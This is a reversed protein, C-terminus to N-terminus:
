VTNKEKRSKKKLSKKEKKEAKEEKKSKRKNKIEIVVEEKNITQVTEIHPEVVNEAAAEIAVETKPEEIKPEKEEPDKSKKRFISKSNLSGTKKKIRNTLVDKLFLIEDDRENLKEILMGRMNLLVMERENLDINERTLNDNLRQEITVSKCLSEKEASLIEIRRRARELEDANLQLEEITKRATELENTNFELTQRIEELYTIQVDVRDKPDDSSEVKIQLSDVVDIGKNELATQFPTAEAVVVQNVLVTEEEVVIQPVVDEVEVDTILTFTNSEAALKINQNKMIDVAPIIEPLM